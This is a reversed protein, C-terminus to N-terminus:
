LAGAVRALAEYNQVTRPALHRGIPCASPMLVFGRGPGETGEALTRQAVREFHPTSLTEIDSLEIGGFLTLQRGARARVDCVRLDGQPPPEVPDLARCGTALILDLIADLRGHSHIRAWGGHRQISAVMPQVYSVVYERYLNPPLYPPSAYEPGYIRWLRGPLARAIAETHPLLVAAFRDLLRRFRAPETLALVTYDEMHFLSAAACLPDGTDLMVIGADGLEAETALVQTPDPQGGAEPEPLALYADLDEVSKLLHETTWWTDTDRERQTRQTLRRGPAEVVTESHRRGDAEWSRQRVHAALPDPPADRFPVGRMVVRDSVDRTLDLLPKWSPDNFINFPDAPNPRQDIGNLEYFCVAPRDVPEDRLTAMLRERRTMM